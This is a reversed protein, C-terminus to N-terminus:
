KKLGREFEKKLESYMKLDNDISEIRKEFIEKWAKMEKFWIGDTMTM